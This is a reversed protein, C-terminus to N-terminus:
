VEYGGSLLECSCVVMEGVIEVHLIVVMSGCV